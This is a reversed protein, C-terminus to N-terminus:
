GAPATERPSMSTRERAPAGSSARMGTRVAFSSGSRPVQKESAERPAVENGPGLRSSRREDRPALRKTRVRPGSSSPAAKAMAMVQGPAGLAGATSYATLNGAGVASGGGTALRTAAGSGTTMFRATRSPSVRAESA